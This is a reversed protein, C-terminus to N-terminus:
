YKGIEVTVLPPPLKPSISSSNTMGLSDQSTHLMVLSASRLRLSKSLTGGSGGLNLTATKKGMKAEKRDSKENQEKIAKFYKFSM